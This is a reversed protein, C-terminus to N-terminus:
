KEIIKPVAFYDGKKLPANKLAEETTLNTNAEDTRWCNVASNLYVLPEVHNTDLENLKDMFTLIKSLEASLSDLEQDEVKIRALNAIKQTVKNDIKM